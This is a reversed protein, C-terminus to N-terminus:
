VGQGNTTTPSYIAELHCRNSARRTKKKEKKEGRRAVQTSKVINNSLSRSAAAAAAFYHGEGLDWCLAIHLLLDDLGGVARGQSTLRRSLDCQCVCAERETSLLPTQALLRFFFLFLLVLRSKSSRDLTDARTQIHMRTRGMYLYIHLLRLHLLSM